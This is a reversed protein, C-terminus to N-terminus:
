IGMENRIKKMKESIKKTLKNESNDKM